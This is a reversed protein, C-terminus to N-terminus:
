HYLTMLVSKLARKMECVKNEWWEVVVKLGWWSKRGTEQVHFAQEQRWSKIYASEEVLFEGRSESEGKSQSFEVQAQTKKFMKEGTLSGQNGLELNLSGEIYEWLM